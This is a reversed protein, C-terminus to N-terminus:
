FGCGLTFMILPLMMIPLYIWTWHLPFRLVLLIFLLPLLSFAFNIVNSVLAALPFVAKEVRVKKLLDGNGVISEVSYSLTQAFWPPPSFNGYALFQTAAILIIAINWLPRRPQRGIFTLLLRLAAVDFQPASM